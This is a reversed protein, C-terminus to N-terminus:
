VGALMLNQQRRLAIMGQNNEIDETVSSPIEPLTFVIEGGRLM